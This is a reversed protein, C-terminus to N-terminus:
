AQVSFNPSTYDLADTRVSLYTHKVFYPKEVDLTNLYDVTNYAVVSTFYYGNLRRVDGNM